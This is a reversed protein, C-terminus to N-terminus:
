RPWMWGEQIRQYFHQDAVAMVELAMGLSLRAVRRELIRDTLPSLEVTKEAERRPMWRSLATRLANRTKKDAQRFMELMMEETATMTKPKFLTISTKRKPPPSYVNPELMKKVEVHYALNTKLSLLTSTRQTLRAALPQPIILAMPAQNLLLVRTILHEVLQFPPNAVVKSFFDELRISTFDGHIVEINPYRRALGRLHHALRGDKEVAYVKEASEALYKTITGYGAGVELVKDRSSVEAMAVLTRAVDEDVLFHQDM